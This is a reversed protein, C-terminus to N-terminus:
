QATMNSKKHRASDCQRLAEIAQGIGSVPAHYTGTPLKWILRRARTLEQIMTSDTVTAFVVNNFFGAHITTPPNDDIQLTVSALSTPALWQPKGAALVLEGTPNIFISTDVEDGNCRIVCTDAPPMRDHLTWDEAGPIRVPAHRLMEARSGVGACQFAADIASGLNPTEFTYSKGGIVATLTRRNQIQDDLDRAIIIGYTHDAVDATLDLRRGGDVILTLPKIVKEAPFDPASILLWPTAAEAWVSVSVSGFRRSETVVCSNSGQTQIVWGAPAGSDSALAAFAFGM